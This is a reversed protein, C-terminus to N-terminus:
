HSGTEYFFSLPFSVLTLPSLFSPVSPPLFSALFILVLRTDVLLVIPLHLLVLSLDSFKITFPFFCVAWFLYLTDLACLTWLLCFPSPLLYTTFIHLSIVFVLNLCTTAETSLPFLPSSFILVHSFSPSLSLSLVAKSQRPPSMHTKLPPSCVGM